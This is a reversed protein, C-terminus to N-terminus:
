KPNSKGLLLVNFLMTSYYFFILYWYQSSKIGFLSYLYVGGVTWPFIGEGFATIELTRSLVTPHLMERKYPASFANSVLVKSPQSDGTAGYGIISFLMSCAVLFRPGKAKKSISDVIVQLAGLHNVIGSMSMGIILTILVGSMSIIGGRSFFSHLSEDDSILYGGFGNFMIDAIEWFTRGQICISTAAGVGISSLLCVVTTKKRFVMFCLMLVPLFTLVNYNFSQELVGCLHASKFVGRSDGASLDICIYIAGAVLAGPFMIQLTWRIHDYINDVGALLRSVNASESIPSICSGFRSGGIIAGILLGQDVQMGQSVYFLALGVTGACIWCSGTIASFVCCFFFSETLFFRSDLLKLFCLIFTSFTGSAIWTSILMGICIDIILVIAVTRIGQVAMKEIEGASYGRNKAFIAVSITCCLLVVQSNLKLCVCGVFLILLSSILLGVSEKLSLNVTNM